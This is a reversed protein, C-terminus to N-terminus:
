NPLSIVGIKVATNSAELYLMGDTQRWGELSLPGLVHIAGAAITQTTIHGTRGYPDAVSTITYTYSSGGTNHILILERGTLAVQEHNTTDVATMTVAVGAAPNPGPSTTKTLTQRAM